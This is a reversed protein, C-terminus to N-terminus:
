QYGTLRQHLIFGREAREPWALSECLDPDLGCCFECQTDLIYLSRAVLGVGAAYQENVARLEFPPAEYEAHVVTLVDDFYLDGLTLTDGIGTIVSRWEKFVQVSEGAVRLVRFEDFYEHSDWRKFLRIPFVLNVMRLNDEIRFGQNESRQLTLVKAIQWPLTDSKREYREVRYLTEGSNDLLTDTIIERVLTTSSDVAAGPKFVVSDVVYDYRRGVELPYYEYGNNLVVEETERKNCALLVFLFLLLIFLSPNM